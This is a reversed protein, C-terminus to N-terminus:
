DRRTVSGAMFARETPQASAAARIRVAQPDEDDLLEELAPLEELLAGLEAADDVGAALELGTTSM